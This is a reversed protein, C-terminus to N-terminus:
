NKFKKITIEGSNHIKILYEKQFFGGSIEDSNIYDIIHIENSRTVYFFRNEVNFSETATYNVTIVKALHNNPNYLILNGAVNCLLNQDALGFPFKVSDSSISSYYAVYPGIKGIKYKISDINHTLSDIFPKPYELKIYEIKSIIPKPLSRRSYIRDYYQYIELFHNRSIETEDNLKNINLLHINGFLLNNTLKTKKVVYSSDTYKETKKRSQNCSVFLLFYFLYNLIKM